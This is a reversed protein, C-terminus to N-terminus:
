GLVVDIPVDPELVDLHIFVNTDTKNLDKLESLVATAAELNTSLFIVRIITDEMYASYELKTVLYIM